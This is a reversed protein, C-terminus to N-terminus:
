WEECNMWTFASTTMSRMLFHQQNNIEDYVPWNEFAYRPSAEIIIGPLFGRLTPSVTSAVMHNGHTDLAMYGIPFKTMQVYIPTYLGLKDTALKTINSGNQPTFPAVLAYKASANGGDADYMLLVDNSTSSVMSSYWIYNFASQWGAHSLGIDDGSTNVSNVTIFKGADMPILSKIDGVFCTDDRRSDYGSVADMNSLIIYFATSTGIVVWKNISSHFSHVCASYGARYPTDIDVYSVAPRFDLMTQPANVGNRSSLKVSSGSGLTPDNRFVIMHRFTDEFVQTWGLASKAGYGTVLCKKLITIIESPTRNVLQPAGVDDWRYVTVPLGM